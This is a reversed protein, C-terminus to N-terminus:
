LQVFAVVTEGCRLDAAGVVVTDYVAPHAKVASEVEQPFVKEGGPNICSSGRDLLTTRGDPERGAWDGPVAYRQGGPGTRFVEADVVESAGIAGTTV